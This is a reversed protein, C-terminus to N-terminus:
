NLYEACVKPIQRPWAVLPMAKMETPRVIRTRDPGIDVFAKGSLLNMDCTGQDSLNLTDYWDYTYGAVIFRGKRFAITLTERWRNRGIAENMAIVQLSGHPTVALEPEQGVGGVWTLGPVSVTPGNTIHLHLTADDGRSQAVLEARDALGDGTFDAVLDANFGEAFAPAAAFLLPFVLRM